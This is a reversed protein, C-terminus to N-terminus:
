KPNDTSAYMRGGLRLQEHGAQILERTLEAEGSASFPFAMVDASGDLQLWIRRVILGCIPRGM